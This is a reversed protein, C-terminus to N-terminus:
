SAFVIWEIELELALELEEDISQVEDMAEQLKVPSSTSRLWNQCCILAEVTLPSLSSRFPDLVRGGTSTWWLNANVMIRKLRLAALVGEVASKWPDHTDNLVQCLDEAMRKLLSDGDLRANEWDLSRPPRKPNKGNEDLEEFYEMYQDDDIVMRDFAREFKKAVKATSEHNDKLGEQVILNLIHACCRMHLFKCGVICSEKMMKRRLYWKTGGKSTPEKFHKTNSPVPQSETPLTLEDPIIIPDTPTSQNPENPNPNSAVDM